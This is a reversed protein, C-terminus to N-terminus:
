LKSKHPLNYNVTRAFHLQLWFSATTTTTGSHFNDNSNRM